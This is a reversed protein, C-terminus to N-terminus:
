NQENRTLLHFSFLTLCLPVGVIGLIWPAEILYDKGQYLLRGWTEHSPSAGLGLFSLSTEVLLLRTMLFPLISVLLRVLDPLLHRVFIQFPSAGLAVSATVYEETRMKLIQSEWFRTLWPFVLFLAALLFVYPSGPFFASMALAILFGPLSSLTDLSARLLFASKPGNYIALSATLLSLVLCTFGIPIVIKFSEFASIFTLKFCDRGFADHGFALVRGLTHTEIQTQFSHFYLCLLFFLVLWTGSLIKSM